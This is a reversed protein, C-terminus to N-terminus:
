TYVFSAVGYVLCKYNLLSDTVTILNPCLTANKLLFARTTDRQEIVHGQVVLLNTSLHSAAKFFDTHAKYVPRHLDFIYLTHTNTLLINWKHGTSVGAQTWQLIPTQKTRWEMLSAFTVKNGHCGGEYPTYRCSYKGQKYQSAMAVRCVEM